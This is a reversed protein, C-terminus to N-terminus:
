QFMKERSGTETESDGRLPILLRESPPPNEVKKFAPGKQLYIGSFTSCGATVFIYILFILLKGQAISKRLKKLNFHFINIKKEKSM